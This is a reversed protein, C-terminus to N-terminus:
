WLYSGSGGRPAQQLLITEYYRWKLMIQAPIGFLNQLPWRAPKTPGSRNITNLLVLTKAVSPRM